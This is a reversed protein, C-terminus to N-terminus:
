APEGQQSMAAVAAEMDMWVPGFGFGDPDSFARSYMFGEDEADHGEKGGAAVAKRTIEDVAERSDMALAFLVPSTAQSDAMPKPAIRAFHAHSLLMFNIDDSWRMMSAEPGKAITDDKVFGIAEYFATSKAVDAVPLSIFIMKTM